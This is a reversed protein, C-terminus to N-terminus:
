YNLVQFTELEDLEFNKLGQTCEKNLDKYIRNNYFGCSNKSCFWLEAYSANSNGGFFPGYGAKCFISSEYKTSKFMKKSNISFIFANEDRKEGSKNDWSVSTFGGFRIDKDKIKYLCLTPGKNDCKEHFKDKEGDKSMKYILKFEINEKGICDFIFKKEDNNNLISSEIKYEKITNKNLNLELTKKINIIEKELNEVRKTLNTNAKILEQIIEDKNVEKQPLCLIIKEINEIPPNLILKITNSENIELSRSKEDNLMNKINPIIDSIKKFLLFYVSLKKLDDLTFSKSYSIEPFSNKLSIKIDLSSSLFTLFIMYEDDKIKIIYNENIQFAKPADEM